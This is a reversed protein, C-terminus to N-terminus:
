RVRNQDMYDSVSQYAGPNAAVRARQRDELQSNTTTRQANFNREANAKNAALTDKAVQYQQMGLYLSGLGQALGLAAMGYGGTTSGDARKQQMFGDWISPDSLKATPSTAGMPLQSLQVGNTNIGTFGGTRTPDIAGFSYRSTLPAALDVGAPASMQGWQGMGNFSLGNFVPAPQPQTFDPFPEYNM